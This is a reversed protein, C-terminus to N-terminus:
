ILLEVEVEGGRVRWYTPTYHWYTFYFECESNTVGAGVGVGMGMGMERGGEKLACRVRGPNGWDKPHMKGPEFVTSLGLGAM